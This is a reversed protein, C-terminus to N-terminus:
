LSLGVMSFIKLPMLGHTTARISEGEIFNNMVAFTLQFVAIKGIAVTNRIQHHLIEGAYMMKNAITIQTVCAIRILLDLM